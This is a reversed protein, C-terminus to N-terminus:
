GGLTLRFALSCSAKRVWRFSVSVSLRPFKWSM